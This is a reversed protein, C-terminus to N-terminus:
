TSGTSSSGTQAAAPAAIGVVLPLALGIRRLTTLLQRRSVPAVTALAIGPELLHFDELQYLAHWVVDVTVATGTDRGVTAAIEEVSSAGDCARWIRGALQNLCHAQFHEQDYVLVEDMVDQVVIGAHRAQPRYADM